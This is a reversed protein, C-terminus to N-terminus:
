ASPKGGSAPAAARLAAGDARLEKAFSAAVLGLSLPGTVLWLVGILLMAPISAALAVFPALVGHALLAGKTWRGLRDGGFAFAALGASVSMFAYAIADAMTMLTKDAVRFLEPDVARGAYLEPVVLSLQTMYVFGALTAYMTAFALATLTLHKKDESARRHIAVVTPVFFVAIGLSPGMIVAVEVWDAPFWVTVTLVQPVAYAIAFVCALTASVTAFRDFRRKAAATSPTM